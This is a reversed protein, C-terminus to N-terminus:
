SYYTDITMIIGNNICLVIHMITHYYNNYYFCVHCTENHGDYLLIDNEIRDDYVYMCVLMCVCMCIYICVYMCMCVNLCVNMYVYQLYMYVHVYMCVYM